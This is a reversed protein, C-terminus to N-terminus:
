IAYVEKEILSKNLQRNYRKKNKVVRM